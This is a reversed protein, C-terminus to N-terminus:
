DWEKIFGYFIKASSTIIELINCNTYFFDERELQVTNVTLNGEAVFLFAINCDHELHLRCSSKLERFYLDGRIGKLMLNFDRFKGTSYTEWDGKFRDIQFQELEVEYHNFHELKMNGELKSIYRDVGPLATFKSKSPDNTNAISIRAKFSREAYSSDSPYIFIENTIGGSWEATKWDNKKIVGYM